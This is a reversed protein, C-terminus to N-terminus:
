ANRRVVAWRNVGTACIMRCPHRGMTCEVPLSPDSLDPNISVTMPDPGDTPEEITLVPVDGIRSLRPSSGYGTLGAAVAALNQDAQDRSASQPLYGPTV